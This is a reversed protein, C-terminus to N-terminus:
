RLGFKLWGHKKDGDPDRGVTVFTLKKPNFLKKVLNNVDELKLDYFNNIYGNVESLQIERNRCISLFSVIKPASSLDESVAISTKIFDLEKPTIGNQFLKNFIEKIKEILKDRNAPDTSAGGQILSMMDEECMNTSIDYVLGHKERVETFLRSRGGGGGLIM